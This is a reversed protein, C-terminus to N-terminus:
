KKSPKDFNGRVRALEFLALAAAVSVNLSDTGAQMPISVLQDCRAASLRSLGRHEAGMVLAVPETLLELGFLSTPAEATLGVTWIQMQSLRRITDPVSSVLCVRVSELGGAAAKFAVPTLPSGRRRPIVLRPTGSASASRAIAGLNRPDTVHDIVLLAAPECEAVLEDLTVPRLPHCDAVVGQPAATEAIGRLSEVKRIRVGQDSAAALLRELRPSDASGAAVQVAKVRGAGLAASVAPIGEVRGGYGPPVM